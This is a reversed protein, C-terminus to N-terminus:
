GAHRSALLQTIKRAVESPTLPKTLCPDGCATQQLLGGCENDYGTMFLVPLAPRLTRAADALQQGSLEPMSRDSLLLAYSDPSEQFAQLAARSSTYGAVRFGCASLGSVLLEVIEPQDDVLLIREQQGNAEAPLSDDQPSAEIRPLYVMFCSGEGPSSEVEIFGGHGHVIGHVVSLGLGTGEGPQKTTFFPEFLKEKVEADMGCGTDCVQLRLFAGGRGGPPRPDDAALSIPQLSLRLRGDGEAMAQWANTCLNMVVQHLQAPDANVLLPGAALQGEIRITRPFTPRVLELVEDIIERFCVPLRTHERRRSFTLIQRVLGKAREGAGAIQRLDKRLKESVEPRQQALEAYGLIPTLLNNFDHAIGGALTGILEMKQAQRLQETLREQAEEAAVRQRIDEELLRKSEELERTRAAVREELASNLQQLLEEQRQRERDRKVLLRARGGLGGLGTLWLLLYGGVLQGRTGSLLRLSPAMDISVSIGGRVEGVQYGQHAHCDLCEKEVLLPRMLRMVPQGDLQEVSSIETEGAAFQRLASAEWPDPANEPRLPKLSTLHGYIGIREAGLENAQRTMYAPNMMTLPIGDPTTIDREPVDLYPNPPTSPSVPVYVFKHSSNWFRYLVDKDYATRAQVRVLELIQEQATHLNWALLIGIALTWLAGLTWFYYGHGRGPRKPPPLAPRKAPTSGSPTM